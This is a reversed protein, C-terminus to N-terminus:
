IRNINVLNRAVVISISVRYYRYLYNFATICTEPCVFKVECVAYKLIVAMNWRRMSSHKSSPPLCLVLKHSDFYSVSQMFQLSFHVHMTERWCDREPCLNSPKLNTYTLYNPTTGAGTAMLTFGTKDEMTHTREKTSGGTFIVCRM